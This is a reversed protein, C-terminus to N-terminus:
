CTCYLWRNHLIYLRQYVSFFTFLFTYEDDTKSSHYYSIATVPGRCQYSTMAGTLRRTDASKKTVKTNQCLCQSTLTNSSRQRQVPWITFILENLSESQDPIVMENKVPTTFARMRTFVKRRPAFRFTVKLRLPAQVQASTIVIYQRLM